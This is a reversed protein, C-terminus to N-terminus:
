ENLAAAVDAAWQPADQFPTLRVRDFGAMVLEMHMEPARLANTSHIIIPCRRTQAVLFATVDEGNGCAEDQAAVSDLDRDLSLLDVRGLNTELWSILESASSFLLRECQGIPLWANRMANTRGPDDELIVILM